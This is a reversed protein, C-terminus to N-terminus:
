RNSSKVTEVAFAKVEGKDSAVVAFSSSEQICTPRSSLKSQSVFNGKADLTWVGGDDTAVVISNGTVKLVAPPSSLKKSWQKECRNNFAVVLGNSLAVVIEKKGDGDLDGLDLDRIDRGGGRAGPGFQVNHLPKGQLDWVTVRNWAGTIESVVEKKGDGDLDELFIHHRTQDMWGSVHTYGAPVGYFSRPTPDLTSSNIVGLSPGDTIKRSALLNVSGEAGPVLAFKYVTGWFQPLRKVLKGHEDIIELTCASGVFAQSKGDLFVGTGVGHIGEHGPASKFWYQKAARFVAPDMESVFTWKRGGALDFACVKEDECGALLLKHEPWWHLQRIKGDTKMQRLEKGDTGLLHVATEEAVAILERGEAPIVIMDRIAGGVNATFASKLEGVSLAAALAVKKPQTRKASAQELWAALQAALDRRAANSPKIGEIVTRGERLLLTMYGSASGNGRVIQSDSRVAAADAVAVTLLAAGCAVVEMRSAAFDWEVDVPVNALFMGQEKGTQTLGKGFLYDEALVVLDGKNGEWEGIIAAAKQPLMLVAANDALRLCRLNNTNTGLLAFFIGHQGKKVARNWEQTIIGGGTTRNFVDAPLVAAGPRRLANQKADFRFGGAQNEWKIQVEMNESDTHFTLDDVVLAYRGTRQALTRRWNCFPAKPTEGVCFATQGIVAAHRLAADMAVQPEVMGDAKTLVQNLYGQLITQGALRLELLAFTHYPNRSAGNFGDILIFDGSADTASRFSANQFSEELPFGNNRALWHPKPLHNITWKGVLDTPQAPKVTENPWFSQGLRFVSTNIGTRERYALWRGDQTLYAVKHLYDLAASNLAWDPVRGSVLLEQGRLLKAAVGNRMSERDGSLVMYTFVPAIGTCYWFLNDNEGAIWAHEHLPAFHFQAGRVCQAWVPDAYDRQFYRGLCYLAIASWQGHRSGVASPSRTLLYVGENKRHNLQRAFANTVKLREEDSFVSSEEILDWFLIMMHANYHYPGALPDDKNEIMEGDIETIEKFAQKDPFALRLAERAHFADGTMYYAAMRKSISNWGFYGVSGYGKSAEWTELERVGRPVVIGDGLKIEMMWGVSRSDGAKLKAILADTAVDVGKADSGGVVIVNHGGGFPNHVTRLEYGGAGPYRLDTLLFYRNYLESIAANTSRNGLLILNGKIPVAAEPSDDSIVPVKCGSQKEIAMQLRVAQAKYIGSTPAVISIAPKGERVLHTTLHLEKLKTCQPPVPPPLPPPPTVGGILRVSGILVKPISHRHSYLYIQAATTDPPAMGRLAIENYDDTNQTILHTQEIKQSPLFRLQVVAYERPANKVARVRVRVEYGVNPKVPVVQTIGVEAERDGDEILAAKGGLDDEVVSVRQDKGRGGYLSWGLPVGNASAGDTFAPNKLPM